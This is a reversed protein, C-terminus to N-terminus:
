RPPPSTGFRAGGQSPIHSQALARPREHVLEAHQASQKQSGSSKWKDGEWAM